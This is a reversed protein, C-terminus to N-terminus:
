CQLCKDLKDTGCKTDSNLAEDQVPLICAEITACLWM